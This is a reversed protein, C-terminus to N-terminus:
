CISSGFLFGLKFECWGPLYPTTNPSAVAKSSRSKSSTKYPQYESDSGSTSFERLRTVRKKAKKAGSRSSGSSTRKRSGSDSRSASAAKGSSRPTGSPRPAGSSRPTKEPPRMETQFSYHTILVSFFHGWAKIRVRVPTEYLPYQEASDVITVVKDSTEMFNLRLRWVGVNAQLMQLTSKLSAPEKKRLSDAFDRVTSQVRRDVDELSRTQLGDDSTMEVVKLAQQWFRERHICEIGTAILYEVLAMRWLSSQVMHPIKGHYHKPLFAVSTSKVRCRLSQTKVPTEGKQEKCLGNYGCVFYKATTSYIYGGPTLIQIGLNPGVGVMFKRIVSDAAKRDPFIAENDVKVESSRKSSEEFDDDIDSDQGVNSAGHENDGLYITGMLVHIRFMLDVIYYCEGSM